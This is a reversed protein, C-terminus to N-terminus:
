IRKAADAKNIVRIFDVVGHCRCATAIMLPQRSNKCVMDVASMLDTPSFGGVGPLLQHSRIVIPMTDDVDLNELLRFMDPPRPKGTHTCIM